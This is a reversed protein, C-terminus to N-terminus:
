KRSMAARILLAASILVTPVGILAPLTGAAAQSMDQVERDHGAWEPPWVATWAMVAVVALWLLVMLGVAASALGSTSRMAPVGAKQISYGRLADDLKAYRRGTKPDREVGVFYYANEIEAQDAGTFHRIREIGSARNPPSPVALITRGSLSLEHIRRADDHVMDGCVVIQASTVDEVWDLHPHRTIDRVRDHLLACRTGAPLRELVRDILTTKGAGDLGLMVISRPGDLLAQAVAPIVREDIRDSSGGRLQKTRGMGRDGDRSSSQSRQASRDGDTPTLIQPIGFLPEKGTIEALAQCLEMWKGRMPEDHWRPPPQPMWEEPVRAEGLHSRAQLSRHLFESALADLDKGSTAKEILDSMDEFAIGMCAQAHAYRGTSWSRERNWILYDIRARMKMLGIIRGQLPAGSRLRELAGEGPIRPDDAEQRGTEDGDLPRMMADITGMIDNARVHMDMFEEGSSRARAVDDDEVDPLGLTRRSEVYQEDFRALVVGLHRAVYAMEFAAGLQADRLTGPELTRAHDLLREAGELSHRCPLRCDSAVGSIASLPGPRTNSDMRNNYSRANATALADLM